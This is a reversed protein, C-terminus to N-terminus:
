FIGSLMVGFVNRAAVGEAAYDEFTYNFQCRLFRVPQWTVGATYNMQRTDTSSCDATFAECRAVVMWRPTVRWGGMVYWGDSDFDGTEGRMYEGRAVACGRDYGIGVGYRVRRLYEEGYEGWYFSGAIQLGAVPRVTLRGVFDKSKNHDLTNIGAGNFVGVNYSLIDFGERAWFGGYAMLGIDRGTGGKLGCVDSFGVLRELVMPYDIFEIKLPPYETNEISFPLKYQGLQFNLQRFPRYRLFADVVMPGALEFQLRYDFKPSIDGQLDLRVRKVFFDSHSSDDIRYGMQLYGSIRPLRELVRNWTRSRERLRIVEAQLEEDTLAVSDAPPLLQTPPPPLVSARSSAAAVFGSMLFILTLFRKM